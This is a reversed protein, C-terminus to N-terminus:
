AGEPYRGSVRDRQGAAVATGRLRSLPKGANGVRFWGRSVLVGLWGRGLRAATQVSWRREPSANETCRAIFWGARNRIWRCGKEPRRCEGPLHRGGVGRHRPAEISGLLSQQGTM